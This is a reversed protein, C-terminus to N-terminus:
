VALRVFLNEGKFLHKPFLYKNVLHQTFNSCETREHAGAGDSM